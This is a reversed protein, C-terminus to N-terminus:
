RKMDVSMLVIYWSQYLKHAAVLAEHPEHIVVEFIPMVLVRVLWRMM